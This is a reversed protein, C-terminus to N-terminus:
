DQPPIEKFGNQKFIPTGVDSLVHNINLKKLAKIIYPITMAYDDPMHYLSVVPIGDQYGWLVGGEFDNQEPEPSVLIRGGGGSEGEKEINSSQWRTFLLYWTEKFKGYDLIIPEKKILHEMHESGIPATVRQRWSNLWEKFSQM